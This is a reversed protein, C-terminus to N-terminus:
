DAAARGDNACVAAVWSGRRIRHARQDSPEVELLVLRRDFPERLEAIPTLARIAIARRDVPDFGLEFAVATGGFADLVHVVRWRGSGAAAPAGVGAERHRRRGRPSLIGVPTFVSGIFCGSSFSRASLM